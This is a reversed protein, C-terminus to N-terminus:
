VSFKEEPNRLPDQPVKDNLVFRVCDGRILHVQDRKERRHPKM